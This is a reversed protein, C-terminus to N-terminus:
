SLPPLDDPLKEQQQITDEKDYATLARFRDYETADNRIREYVRVALAVYERLNDEAKDLEEPTLSPFLEQLPHIDEKDKQKEM